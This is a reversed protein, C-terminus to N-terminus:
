KKGTLVSVRKDEETLKSEEYANYEEQCPTCLDNVETSSLVCGCEVCHSEERNYMEEEAMREQSRLYSQAGETLYCSM